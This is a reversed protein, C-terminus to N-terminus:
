LLPNEDALAAPHDALDAAGGAGLDLEEQLPPDKEVELNLHSRLPAPVLCQQLPQSDSTGRVASANSSRRARKRNSRASSARATRTPSFSVLSWALM